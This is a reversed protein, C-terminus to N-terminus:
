IANLNHENIVYRDKSRELRDEYICSEAYKGRIVIM